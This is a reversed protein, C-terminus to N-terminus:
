CPSPFLQDGRGLSSVVCDKLVAMVDAEGLWSRGRSHRATIVFNGM